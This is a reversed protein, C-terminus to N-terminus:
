YTEEMDGEEGPEWPEPESETSLTFGAEVRIDLLELDPTEYTRKM